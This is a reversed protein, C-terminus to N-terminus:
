GLVSSRSHPVHRSVISRNRLGNSDIEKILRKALEGHDSEAAASIPLGDPDTATLAPVNPFVMRTIESRPSRRLTDLALEVCELLGLFVEAVAIRVSRGIASPGSGATVTAAASPFLEFVEQGVHAFSRIASAQHPDIALSGIGFGIGHPSAGRFRELLIDISGKFGHDVGADNALRLREALTPSEPLHSALRSVLQASRKAFGRGPLEGRSGSNKQRSDLRDPWWASNPSGAAGGYIAPPAAANENGTGRGLRTGDGRWSLLAGM